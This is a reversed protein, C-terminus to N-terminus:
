RVRRKLDELRLRRLGADYARRCIRNLHAQTVVASRRGTCDCAFRRRGTGSSVGSPDWERLLREHKAKEAAIGEALSLGDPFTGGAEHVFIRAEILDTRLQPKDRDSPNTVDIAHADRRDKVRMDPVGATLRGGPDGNQPDLRGLVTM